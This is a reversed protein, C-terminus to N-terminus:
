DARRGTFSIRGERKYRYKSEDSKNDENIEQPLAAAEVMSKRKLSWEKVVGIIKGILKGITLHYIKIIFSFIARIPILLIRIIFAAIKKILRDLMISLALMLRGLTMYYAAGGALMAIYVIGRFVGGSVNYTLLLSSLAFMIWFTVDGVLTVAFILVGKARSQTSKKALEGYRVGLLIKVFRIAEYLLGHVVGLLFAGVLLQILTQQSLDIM